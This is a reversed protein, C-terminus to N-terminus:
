GGGVFHVIELKDGEQLLVEPWDKRKVILHNLEIAVRQQNLQLDEVLKQLSLPESFEKKEGNLIIQM